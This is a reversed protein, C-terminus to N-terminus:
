TPGFALEVRRFSFLAGAGIVLAWAFLIGLAVPTALAAQSPVIAPGLGGSVADSSLGFPLLSAPNLHGFMFKALPRLISEVMAAGLLVMLTPVQARVLFGVGMGIAAYAQLVFAGRIWLGAITALSIRLPEGQAVLGGLLVLGHLVMLCVTLIGSWAALAAWKRLFLGARTPHHLAARAIGGFRFDSTVLLAGLIAAGLATLSVGFGSGGVIDAVAGQNGPEALSLQALTEPSLNQADTANPIVENLSILFDILLPLFAFLSATFLGGLCLVVTVNRPVRGYRAKLFEARM